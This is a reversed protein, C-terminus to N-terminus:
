FRARVGFRYSRGLADYIDTRTPVYFYPAATASSHPISPPDTDLVNDVAAYIQVAKEKDVMYSARLDLLAVRPVSNDDVDKPGWVNNLKASGFGRVQASVSYRDTVYSGTLTARLKPQGVTGVNPPDRNLSGEAHVVVGLSDIITDHTYNGMLSVNLTGAGIPRSYDAQFDIGSTKYSAANVPATAIISIVGAADRQILPCFVQVGAFCQALVTNFSASTIADKINISYWDVSATLGPVWHPSLVVGVSYTKAREPQLDPNGSSLAFINTSPSGPRFPDAVVQISTSGPNFLDALSPARIDASVTGRLRIDDNVQSTLGLKWTEVRGSTSYNTVRGAATADLSQVFSDKLLPVSTEAFAEYTHYDAKMYQFNGAAYARDYSMQDATQLVSERRYEVGAVVSVPGAWTSVPQGQVSLGGTYQELDLDSAAPGSNVYAIAEPSAVGVGLVNLPVCGNNPTSLRSRCVISGVPLGSAGVNAATVRVADIALNYNAIVPDVPLHTHREVKSHQVDANWTWGRFSGSLTAVERLLSREVDDYLNGLGYPETYNDGRRPDLNNANTTGLPFSSIGLTAMRAVITPDLYPNDSRININGQRTYSGSGNTTMSHGYNVEFTGRLNESFEYAFHGFFTESEIPVALNDAQGSLVPNEFTGGNSLTGSVNGFNFPAPTGNPGLFQIGRLPGSTILGGQTASSLGVYDAHILRPQNNTPTYAPNNVLNTAKYWSTQQPLVLDPSYLYAGSLILHAREGIDVGYSLEAKGTRRYNGDNTAGEINTAWGTFRKNLIVNVVGSVADSGWAASAGGTVVDIRQVLSSPLLNLDVGGSQTSSVVRKGDFLVLTREVGLGRLNVLSLGATGASVSQSGNATNPSSSAGASPLQQIISSLDTHGDRAMKEASVVTVPTPQQYGSITIRSATVVVEELAAPAAQTAATQALAPSAFVLAATCFLTSKLM